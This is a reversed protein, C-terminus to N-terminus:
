LGVRFAVLQQECSSPAVCLCTDEQVEGQAPLPSHGGSVTDPCLPSMRSEAGWLLGGLIPEEVM